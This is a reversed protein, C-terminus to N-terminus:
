LLFFDVNKRSAIKFEWQATIYKPCLPPVNQQGGLRLRCQRTRALSLFYQIRDARECFNKSVIWGQFTFSM